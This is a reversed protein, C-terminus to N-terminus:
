FEFNYGAEDLVFSVGAKIIPLWLALPIGPFSSYMLPFKLYYRGVCTVIM